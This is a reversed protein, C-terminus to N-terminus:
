KRITCHINDETKQCSFTRSQSECFRGELTLTIDQRDGYKTFDTLYWEDCNEKNPITFLIPIKRIQNENEKVWAYYKYDNKDDQIVLYKTSEHRGTSNKFDFRDTIVNNRSKLPSLTTLRGFYSGTETYFRVTDSDACCGYEITGLILSDFPSDVIVVDEGNNLSFKQNKPQISLKHTCKGYTGESQHPKSCQSVVFIHKEERTAPAYVLLYTRESKEIGNQISYSWGTDKTDTAFSLSPVLCLLFLLAAIQLIQINM